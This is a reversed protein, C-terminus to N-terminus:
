FFEKREFDVPSIDREAIHAAMECDAIYTLNDDLHHKRIHEIEHRVARWRTYENYNENVLVYYDGNHEVTVGKVKTTMPILKIIIRDM